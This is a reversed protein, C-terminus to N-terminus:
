YSYKFGLRVARPSLNEQLANFSTTTTRRERQIVTNENTVNFIDMALTIRGYNSMEFVKQVNLDLTFINDYRIQDITTLPVLRGAAYFNFLNGEPVQAFLPQPYGQQYRVFAGTSMNWPLQYMGSMKFSWEAYPFVGTKGSGGSVFAYSQDDYLNKAILPDAYVDRSSIGDGQTYLFSNQGDYHAIQRQLTLSGNLMFNNSMRKRAGLDVGNYTQTYGDITTLLQTGDHEFALDSYRVSFSGYDPHTFNVVGAPVYDAATVGFPVIASLEDYRRYTYSAFVALDKFLEREFGVVAEDTVPSELDGIRKLNDFVEQNFPGAAAGGYYGVVGTIENPTIVRDGNPNEYALVVGNYSYTPNAYTDYVVTYGDYYRAYNGRLLTKGDGTLDYTAGLRPSVDTFVKSRDNGAFDVPAIFQDFGGPSPMSAAQNEGSGTDVRFGLNLTLRDKRWTDTAYFSTRYNNVTGDIFRQAYIRGGILPGNPVTQYYDIILAGNGYSSFTHGENRKYEFGFKFEHDGGWNEKFINLDANFDHSPRDIPNLNYSTDEFRPIKALFIIPVTCPTDPNCNGSRPVLNFSNGIYGYRANLITHDDPIFTHQGTWIGNLITGPDGQEWLTEEAQIPPNFGRGSKEKAGDFYGFQSENAPNANFNLKFNLDKLTTKDSLSKGTYPDTVRTFLDIQNRRCAGWVFLKDKVIPGGVDFGWDLVQDIRNSRLVGLQILEEPTNDSQLSDNVFYYSANAEWRNGARKTVLNVVVGKAGISADAGGSEISIEEFADFDYYTPTSGLAVPDTTNIGDYNWINDADSTGRAFFASQQGSESGAVNIRDNDVGPTQEIMVWPDRGTPVKELYERNFSTDNGTKKTDVAPTDAVVVFEEALTPKLAIDLQVSGGVNVRVDEQRVETFGELSFTVSYTSPPLNAFRFGGTPGTTAIQPQIAASELTVTVGPIPAGKEDVVRGFISGTRTSVQAFLPSAVVLFLITILSKKKM